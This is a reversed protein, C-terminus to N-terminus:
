GMAVCLSQVLAKSHYSFQTGLFYCGEGVLWVARERLKARMEGLSGTDREAM